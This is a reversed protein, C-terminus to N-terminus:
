LVGPTLSHKMESFGAYNGKLNGTFLLAANQEIM